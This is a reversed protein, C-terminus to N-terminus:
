QINNKMAESPYQIHMQIWNRFDKIEGSRFSPMKETVLFPENGDPAGQVTASETQPLRFDVPLTYKVRVKEGRQEGPTWAGAPSSAIVRRAEDALLKDPSQLVLINSVSGEKEITFTVVVRGQINREVAEAPYQLHEQVWARFANLDGGRFSPMKEVILFPMDETSASAIEVSGPKENFVAEDAAPKAAGKTTIVIVGNSGRAGYIATSSADKLVSIAGIDASNIDNLDHIGDIVGDVIILPENSASISRTGRIRISTTAGPEGTTAMIDAGAIRGQLAQDVSVVPVDKIDSMKVNAVSGTLDTKKVTGYGIVVVEDITQKSQELKVDVKTRAGVKETKAEYGIYQFTLSAGEPVQISYDGTANTSAGNTTGTVLVTAGILPEGSQDTVKGTVTHKTGSKQAFAPAATLVGSVLLILLIIYQKM